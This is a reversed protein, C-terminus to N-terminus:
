GIINVNWAHGLKHRSNNIQTFRLVAIDSFFTFSILCGRADTRSLL